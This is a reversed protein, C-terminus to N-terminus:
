PFVPQSHFRPPNQTHPLAQSPPHPDLHVRPHHDPCPSHARSNCEVGLHKSGVAIRFGRLRRISRKLSWESLNQIAASFLEEHRLLM